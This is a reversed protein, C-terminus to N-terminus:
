IKELVSKTFEFDDLDAVFMEKGNAYPLETPLVKGCSICFEEASKTRKILFRNDYVGGVVKGRLYIIYEGMMKRYTIGDIDSLFELVFKFYDESTPM